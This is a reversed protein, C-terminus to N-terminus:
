NRPGRRTRPQKKAPRNTRGQPAVFALVVLGFVGIRAAPSMADWFVGFTSLVGSTLGAVIDWVGFPMEVQM